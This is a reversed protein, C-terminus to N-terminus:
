VGSGGIQSERNMSPNASQRKDSVASKRAIM